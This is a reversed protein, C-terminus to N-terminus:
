RSTCAQTASRDVRPKAGAVTTLAAIEIEASDLALLIAIADDQGPDCDLLIRHPAM